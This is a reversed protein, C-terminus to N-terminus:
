TYQSHYHLWPDNHQKVAGPKRLPHLLKWQHNNNAVVAHVDRRSPGKLGTSFDKAKLRVRGSPIATHFKRIAKSLSPKKQKPATYALAKSLRDFHEWAGRFTTHHQSYWKRKPDRQQQKKLAVRQVEGTATPRFLHAPGKSAKIGQRRYNDRKAQAKRHAYYSPSHVRDMFPALQRKDEARQEIERIAEKSPVLPSPHYPHRRDAPEVVIGTKRRARRVHADHRSAVGSKDEEEVEDGLEKAEVALSNDEKEAEEGKKDFAVGHRVKEDHERWAVDVEEYGGGRPDDVGPLPGRESDALVLATVLVMITCMFFIKMNAGCSAADDGM